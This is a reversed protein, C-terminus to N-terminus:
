TGAARQGAVPRQLLGVASACVQEHRDGFLLVPVTEVPIGWETCDMLEGMGPVGGATFAGSVVPRKSHALCLYLRWDDSPEQPFDRPIFATPLYSIDHLGDPLKVYEVRHATRPDRAEQTRRDLVTLAEDVVQELLGPEIVSITPRM